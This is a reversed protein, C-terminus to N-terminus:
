WRGKPPLVAQGQVPREMAQVNGIRELREAGVHAGPERLVLRPAPEALVASVLEGSALGHRGPALEDLLEGVRQHQQEEDGGCDGRREQDRADHQPDAIEAASQSM